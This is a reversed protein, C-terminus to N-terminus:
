HFANMVEKGIVVVIWWLVMSRCFSQTIIPLDSIILSIGTLTLELHFDRMSPMQSRRFLTSVTFHLRPLGSTSCSYEQQSQESESDFNNFKSRM